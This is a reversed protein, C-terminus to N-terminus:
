ASSCAPCRELTGDQPHMMDFAKCIEPENEYPMAYYPRISSPWDVIFYHRGMEEGIAREAATGIDDGFVIPDESKKGAIDIAEAYSLRPFGKEPVSFSDLELDAVAGPCTKDVYSYVSCVLDELIQM